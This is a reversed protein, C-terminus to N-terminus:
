GGDRHKRDRHKRNRASADVSRPGNAIESPRRDAREHRVERQRHVQGPMSRHESREPAERDLDLHIRAQRCQEQQRAAERVRWMTAKHSTAMTTALIWSNNAPTPSPRAASRLYTGCKRPPATANTPNVLRGRSQLAAHTGAITILYIHLTAYTM